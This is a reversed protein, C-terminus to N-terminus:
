PWKTNTSKYFSHHRGRVRTALCSWILFRAIGMSESQHHQLAAMMHCWGSRPLLRARAHERRGRRSIAVLTDATIGRCCVKCKEPVRLSCRRQQWRQQYKPLIQTPLKREPCRHPNTRQLYRPSERTRVRRARRPKQWVAPTLATNLASTLDVHVFCITFTAAM